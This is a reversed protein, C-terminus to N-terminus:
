VHAASRMAHASQAVAALWASQEGSGVDFVRNPKEARLARHVLYAPNAHHIDEPVRQGNSVYHIKLRNRLVVDLVGGLRVAEDLKTLVCGCCDDATYRKVAEELTESQVTANLVVLRRARVGRLMAIQEVVRDDRQSLGATDILVLKKQTLSSLSSALSAQDHITQVPIGLIKGYIRLQDQAGIRYADTTILALQNVGYKVAFRAAMKAATTTKGVGTPGVLAFVGGQDTLDDAPGSHLLNRQMIQSVWERAQEYSMNQPLHDILSRSLAPSLGSSILDSLLRLRTPERSVGDRWALTALQDEIFGRMSRMEDAIIGSQPRGAPQPMQVASAQPVPAAMPIQIQAPVPVPAAVVPQAAAQPQVMPQMVPAAAVPVAVQQQASQQIPQQVVIPPQAAAAQPAHRAVSSLTTRADESQNSLLGQLLQDDSEDGGTEDLLSAIRQRTRVIQAETLWDPEAKVTGSIRERLTMTPKVPAQAQIRTGPQAKAAAPTLSAPASRQKLSAPASADTMRSLDGSAAALIEVGGEVPRNALIVADGGLAERVERLALRSNAAVFRRINM